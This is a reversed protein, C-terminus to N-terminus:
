DKADANRYLRDRVVEWPICTVEGSDVERIRGAIEQQWAEEIALDPTKELSAILRQAIRAREADPMELAHKILSEASLNKM